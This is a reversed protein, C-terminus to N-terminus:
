IDLSKVMLPTSDALSQFGMEQAQLRRAFEEDSENQNALDM